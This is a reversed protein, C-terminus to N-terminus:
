DEIITHTMVKGKTVDDIRRKLEAAESPTFGNEDCPASNNERNKKALMLIFNIMEKLNM